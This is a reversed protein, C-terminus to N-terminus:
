TSKCHVYERMESADGSIRFHRYCFTAFGGFDVYELCIACEAFHADIPALCGSQAVVLPSTPVIAFKIGEAGGRLRHVSATPVLPHSTATGYGDNEDAESLYALIHSDTGPMYRNGVAHLHVRGFM